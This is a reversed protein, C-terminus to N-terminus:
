PVIIHSNLFNFHLRITEKVVNECTKSKVWKLSNLQMQKYAIEDLSEIKLMLNSYDSYSICNYGDILGHPACFDSKQDLNKFCIVAGNAAIEYHRLCDWGGRKTTIGFKSKRLDEYYDNENKFAYSTVSEKVHRSVEQDVIHKAFLKTKENWTTQIKIEPISFSIQHIKPLPMKGTLFKPVLKYYRYYNTRRAISRFLM